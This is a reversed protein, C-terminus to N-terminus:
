LIVLRIVIPVSNQTRVKELITGEGLEVIRIITTRAGKERSIEEKMLPMEMRIQWSEYDHMTNSMQREQQILLSFVIDINPLPQMLM